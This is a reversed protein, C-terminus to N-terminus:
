IIMFKKGAIQRVFGKMELITLNSLIEGIGINIEYSLEDLSKENEKLSEIICKETSSLNDYNIKIKKTKETFNKFEGIEDLIDDVHMVLKAGDRILRNTGASYLSNINGPLAFVDRGQNAAHGATILTGSKEQAEVVLVGSSLASIIRNRHPFNYPIPHTGLPYESVIVGYKEEIDRYINENKAPYTMDIGTAIVGITKGNSAIASKHAIADIGLALGSAICIGYSSLERAFKEAYYKGYSTAKRSGVIAVSLMNLCSVDGKYYLIYPADKINKLKEPYDVDSQILVKINQKYADDRFKNEFYDKRTILRDIVAPKLFSLNEREENICDWIEQLDDFYELLYSYTNVNANISDSLWSVILREDINM